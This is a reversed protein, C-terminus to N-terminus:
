YLIALLLPGAVLEESVVTLHSPVSIGTPPFPYCSVPSCLKPLEPMALPPWRSPVTSANSPQWAGAVGAIVQVSSQSRSAISTTARVPTFVISSLSPTCELKPPQKLTPVRHRSPSRRSSVSFTLRRGTCLFVSAAANSSLPGARPAITSAHM